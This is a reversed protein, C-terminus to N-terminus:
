SSISENDPLTEERLINRVSRYLYPKFEDINMPQNYLIAHYSTGSVLELIMFIMVEPNRFTRKSRVLLRQYIDFITLSEDDGPEILADKFFGWSLHKSLFLVLSKDECFQNLIHDIMFIVQDEFEEINEKLLDRYAARFVQNAKFSILHNRIDDKDTFYLYFTGKAVGAKAVIDSISTKYFGNKIFLRFAADLLSDRKQKKNADVKGM